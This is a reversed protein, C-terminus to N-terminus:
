KGAGGRPSGPPADIVQKPASAGPAKKIMSPEWAGHEKELKKFFPIEREFRSPCSKHKGFDCSKGTPVDNQSCKGFYYLLCIREPPTDSGDKGKGKGKPTTSGDADAGKGKGKGKAGKAGKGPNQGGAGPQQQQQQPQQGQPAPAGAKKTGGISRALSEQNLRQRTDSIVKDTMKSMFRYCRDPHGQVCRDYYEVHARLLESGRIKPIYLEELQEESLPFTLLRM